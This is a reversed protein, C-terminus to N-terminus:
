LTDVLSKIRMPMGKVSIAATDPAKTIQSTQAYFFLCEVEMNM